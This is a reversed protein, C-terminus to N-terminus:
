GFEVECIHLLSGGHALRTLCAVLNQSSVFLVLVYNRVGLFKEDLASCAFSSLTWSASLAPSTLSTLSSLSGPFSLGGPDPLMQFLHSMQLFTSFHSCGLLAWCQLSCLLLTALVFIVHSPRYYLWPRLHYATIYHASIMNEILINYLNLLDITEDRDWRIRRSYFSGKRFARIQPWLGWRM